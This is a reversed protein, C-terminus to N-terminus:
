RRLDHAAMEPQPQADGRLGRARGIMLSDDPNKIMLRVNPPRGTATRTIGLKRIRQSGDVTPAHEERNQLGEPRLVRDAAHKHFLKMWDGVGDVDEVAVASDRNINYVTRGLREVDSAQKPGHVDVPR